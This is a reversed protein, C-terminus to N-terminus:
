RLDMRMRRLGVKEHCSGGETTDNFSVKVVTGENYCLPVRNAIM